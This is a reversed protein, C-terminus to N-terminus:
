ATQTRARARGAQAQYVTTKNYDSLGLDKESYKPINTFSEHSRDNPHEIILCAHECVCQMCTRVCM